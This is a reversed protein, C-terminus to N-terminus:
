RIFLNMLKDLRRRSIPLNIDNRLVCYIGSNKHISKIASVNVIFKSHVRCFNPEKLQKEYAGLNKSATIKGKKLHFHSYRGDAEIYVIEDISVVDIKDLSSIAIQTNTKYEEECNQLIKYNKLIAKKLLTLLKNEIIPKTLIGLPQYDIIKPELSFSSSCFILHTSSLDIRDLTDFVSENGINVECILIDPKSVTFSQQLDNLKSVTSTIRLPLDIQDIFQIIREINKSSDDVLMVNFFIDKKDM